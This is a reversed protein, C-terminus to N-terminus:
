LDLPWEPEEIDFLNEESLNGTFWSIEKVDIKKPKSLRNGM